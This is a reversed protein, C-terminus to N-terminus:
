STRFFLVYGLFLVFMLVIIAFVAMSLFGLVAGMGMLVPLIILAPTSTNFLRECLIVLLIFPLLVLFVGGLFQPTVHLMDAMADMGDGVWTGDFRAAYLDAQGTGWTRATTDMDVSQIWFLQPCLSVLGPIASTMYTQGTEDLISGSETSELLSVSWNSELAGVAEVMWTYLAEQNEEQGDFGSYMSEGLVLSTEPPTAWAAPTGRLEITYATEWVLAEDADFYLGVIGMDYGDNYYPYPTVVGLQDVGDMLRILFLEQATETPEATPDYLINYRVAVFMDDEEILDRCAIADLIELTDPPDPDALM